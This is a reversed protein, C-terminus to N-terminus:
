KRRTFMTVLLFLVVGPWALALMLVPWDKALARCDKLVAAIAVGTVMTGGLYIGLLTELM